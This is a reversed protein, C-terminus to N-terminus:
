DMLIERKGSHNPESILGEKEMREILIAARNYGIRLSRQIYSTSCKRDKKVIQVAQKYLSNDDAADDPLLFGDEEESEIVSDVYDPKGQSKLFSVIREVERDDVFPGHVRTIKAGNGMYLMDGMGLLQESGMEGLITRSDIKSTVKFSIRSPFNAKIVGTIVDVSPRQTATILHIGAARAMQALRQIFGEIDKGAVLMLDAMEDVIVVIFPMKKLEVPRQEFEDIEVQASRYIEQGKSIADEIRQNYNMINRVGMQSMLRYRQEMEKVAWKLAVVAKSAETVVPTLLHPIEDYVSLELMKPDIMIFRCEQPTYKYLLSLIMTNIGVSKGSGTTGAILLHPMKALDVVFPKGSLDKGLVIPLLLNPNNYEDTAILEKLSFFQRHTNPLEIGLVNRGSITSIRASISSMSRAIDDALGIVRSSKTGASPEFEYLTVVPGQNISVIKGKVGFDALTKILENAKQELQQNSEKKYNSNSHEKLLDVTPLNFVGSDLNFDPLRRATSKYEEQIIASELFDDEITPLKIVDGQAKHKKIYGIVNQPVNDVISLKLGLIIALCMFFILLAIYRVITAESNDCIIAGIAGGLRYKDLLTALAITAILFACIKLSSYNIQKNKLLLCSCYVYGASIIYAAMGFLQVLIDAINSGVSGLWNTIHKGSAVNACNDFPNYSILCLFILVGTGALLLAKLNISLDKPLDDKFSHIM